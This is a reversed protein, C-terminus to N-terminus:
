KKDPCYTRWFPAYELPGVQKMVLLDETQKKNGKKNTNGYFDSKEDM